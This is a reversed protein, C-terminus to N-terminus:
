EGRRGRRDGQRAALRGLVTQRERATRPEGKLAALLREDLMPDLGLADAVDVALDDWEGDTLTENLRRRAQPSMTPAAPDSSWPDRKLM